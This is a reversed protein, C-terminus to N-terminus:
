VLHSACPALLSSLSPFLRACDASHHDQTPPYLIFHYLHTSALKQLAKFLLVLNSMQCLIQSTYPISKCMSHPRSSTVHFASPWFGLHRAGLGWTRMQARFLMESVKSCLQIVLSSKFFFFIRAGLGPMMRISNARPRVQVHPTTFSGLHNWDTAFSSFWQGLPLPCGWSPILWM